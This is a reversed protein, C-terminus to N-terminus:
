AKKNIKKRNINKKHKKRFDLPSIGEVRKFTRNFHSITNYGVNVSIDLVTLDTEVLFRKVEKIRIANLYAPFTMGSRVKIIEPIKYKSVGTKGAIIDVNIDSMFYHEGIYRIVLDGEPDEAAKIKVEKYELKFKKNKIVLYFEVSLLLLLISISLIIFPKPSLLVIIEEITIIELRDMPSTSSNVVSFLTIGDLDPLKFDKEDVNNTSFWWGAPKLYSVPLNRSVKKKGTSIDSEYIFDSKGKVKIGLNFRLAKSGTASVRYRISNRFKLNLGEGQFSLSYGSFPYQYGDKLHSHYIIKENTHEVLKCISNGGYQIDSSAYGNNTSNYPFVSVPRIIAFPILLATFIIALVLIRLVKMNFM